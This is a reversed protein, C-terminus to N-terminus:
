FATHALPVTAFITAINTLEQLQTDVDLHSAQQLAAEQTLKQPKSPDARTPILQDNRKQPANFLLNFYLFFLDLHEGFNSQYSQSYSSM